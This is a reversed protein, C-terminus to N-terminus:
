IFTSTTVRVADTRQWRVRGSRPNLVDLNSVDQNLVELNSMEQILVDLDVVERIMVKLQDFLWLNTGAGV